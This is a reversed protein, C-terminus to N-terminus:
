RCQTTSTSYIGEYYLAKVTYENFSIFKYQETLHYNMAKIKAIDCCKTVKDIIALATISTLQLLQYHKDSWLEFTATVM